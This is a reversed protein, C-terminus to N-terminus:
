IIVDETFPRREVIRQHGLETLDLSRYEGYCIMESVGRGVGPAQQLGHGSFGNAFIFNPLAEAPGIVANQDFTNYAYHGAWSSKLSIRDFQPIRHALAPWIQEDFEYRRVVFDDHDVAPDDVPVGAALYHPPESRVWIGSTDIILPPNPALPSRCDFLFVSRKRPEVPLELGAMAAVTSAHPGTCNVVTGCAISRGSALEVSCVRGSGLTLGVVRDSLYDVANHRARQRFGQLLSNADLTGEHRDGLSAGALDDTFLYPFRRRTEVPDLLSVEAGCRSQTEHNQRVTAMGEDTALFLYGTERFGLDPSEGEVQVREHFENIFETCFRSIAINVPNSFQHRVSAASLATSSRAYTPDQEIVLVTGAFDPNESLFYATSSGMVAGGIIVVDYSSRLPSM